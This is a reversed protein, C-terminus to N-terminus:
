WRVLIRVLEKFPVYLKKRKREATGDGVLSNSVLSFMESFFSCIGTDFPNFNAPCFTFGVEIKTGVGDMGIVMEANTSFGARRIDVVAGFGGIQETGERLTSKVLGKIDDIFANGEHIDVGSDGYTLSLRNDLLGIDQRFYKGDFNVLHYDNFLSNHFVVIDASLQSPQPLDIVTGKDGSYPYNRSALIIGCAHRDDWEINLESLTGNVCATCVSYLDSKLLRMLVETEPDGFRCNYELLQAGDATVMLGAYIVGKYVIGEKRLSAVTDTLIRDIQQDIE